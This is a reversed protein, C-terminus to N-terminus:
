PRGMTSSPSLLPELPTLYEESKWEVYWSILQERLAPVLALALVLLLGLLKVAQRPSVRLALEVFDGLQM